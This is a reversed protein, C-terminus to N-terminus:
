GELPGGPRGATKSFLQAQVEARIVKGTSTRPLAVVPVVQLSIDAFTNAIRELLERPSSVGTEVVAYVQEEGQENQASLMCVGSLKHQERVYDEFRSASEKSGNINIVETTRGQLAIRGDGRAMALDGPYFYGKRFFKATADPDNLYEAPCDGIPVRLHGLEGLPVPRDLADVIEVGRGPLTTHWRQDEAEHLPTHAINGAETSGLRNFIHPCIRRKAERIESTTVTGGGVWLQMKENFPFSGEPAALIETLFFPLLGAHTGKLNRLANHRGPDQHIIIGGGNSWAFTPLGFGAITWSGYDFIHKVTESVSADRKAIVKEIAPGDWFIRKPWGTTASTQLIHGGDLYHQETLRSPPATLTPPALLTVGLTQCAQELGPWSSPGIVQQLGPLPQGALEEPSRIPWTTLGLSRLALCVVWAEQLDWIAVGVIGSGGIQRDIFEARASAIARAYQRYTLEQGHRYIAVADPTSEAFHFIREIAM